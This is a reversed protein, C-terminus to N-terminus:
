EFSLEATSGGAFPNNDEAADQDDDMHELSGLHDSCDGHDIDEHDSNEENEFHHNLAAAM